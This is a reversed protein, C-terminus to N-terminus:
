YQCYSILVIILMYVFACWPGLRVFNSYDNTNNNSNNKDGNTNNNNNSDNKM